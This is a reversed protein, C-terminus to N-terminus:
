TNETQKPYDKWAMKKRNDLYKNDFQNGYAELEFQINMYADQYDMGKALNKLWQYVYLIYFPLVFLEAQQAIHISEHNVTVWNGDDEVFIFPFLTIAYVDIFISLLKPVKSNRIIIPKM